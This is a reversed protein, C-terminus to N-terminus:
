PNTRRRGSAPLHPLTQAARKRREIDEMWARLCMVGVLVGIIAILAGLVLGNVFDIVVEGRGERQHRFTTFTTLVM